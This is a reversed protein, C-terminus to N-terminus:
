EWEGLEDGCDMVRACGSHFLEELVVADEVILSMSVIGRELTQVFDAPYLGPNEESDQILTRYNLIIDMLDDVTLPQLKPELM